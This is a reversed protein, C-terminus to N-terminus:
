LHVLIKDLVLQSITKEGFVGVRISIETVEPHSETLKIQIRKGDATRVTMEGSLSEKHQKTVVFQLEQMAAENAPWIKELPEQETAKLEGRVFAVGGTAAGAGVVVAVCGATSFLIAALLVASLILKLNMPDDTQVADIEHLPFGLEFGSPQSRFSASLNLRSGM